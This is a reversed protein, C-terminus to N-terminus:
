YKRSTTPSRIRRPIKAHIRLVAIWRRLVGSLIAWLSIESARSIRNGVAAPSDGATSTNNRDYGLSDMLADLLPQIQSAGPSIAFKESLVRYVALSIAEERAAEVDPVTVKTEM